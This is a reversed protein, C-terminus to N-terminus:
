EFKENLHYDSDCNRLPLELAKGATYTVLMMTTNNLIDIPARWTFSMMFIIRIVLMIIWTIM